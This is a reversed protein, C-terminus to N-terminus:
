KGLWTEIEGRRERELGYVRRRAGVNWVAVWGKEVLGELARDVAAAASDAALWWQTIGELTDKAEPHRMLYSLIERQVDRLRDASDDEDARKM